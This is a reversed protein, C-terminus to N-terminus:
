KVAVKKSKAWLILLVIVGVASVAAVSGWIIVNSNDGTQPANLTADVVIAFPSFEDTSFTLVNNEAKANEVLEWEGNNYHILAVFGKLTDAKLKLTVTGPNDLNASIDFLDSVALDEVDIGLDEAIEALEEVLTSLDDTGKIDAYAERLAAEAEADLEDADAYPTVEIELTEGEPVEPAEVSEVEPALNNSPSEIFSDAFATLSMSLMMVVALCVVTIKKM